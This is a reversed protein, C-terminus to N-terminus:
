ISEGRLDKILQKLQIKKNFKSLSILYWFLLYLIVGAITIIFVDVFSNCPIFYLIAFMVSSLSISYFINRIPWTWSFIKRSVFCLIIFYLIYSVFTAFAAGSLKYLSILYYNLVINIIAILILIIAFIYTKNSVYIIYHFMYSLGVLFFAGLLFFLVFPETVFQKTTLKIILQNYVKIMGFIMPFSMFCYISIASGIQADLKQQNKEEWYKAVLPFLPFLIAPVFIHVIKALNYNAAYIGAKSLDLFHTIFYRDSVDVVQFLAEGFILPTGYKLFKSISRIDPVHFGYYRTIHMVVALYIVMEVIVFIAFLTSVSLKNVYFLCIILIVESSIQIFEVISYVLVKNLARYLSCAVYYNTRVFLLVLFWDVYTVYAENSFVLLALSRRFFFGLVLSFSLASWAILNITSFKAAISSPDKEGSVFRVCTERLGLSVLSMLFAVTITAQSFIGYGHAGLGKTVLPILILARGKTIVGVGFRLVV